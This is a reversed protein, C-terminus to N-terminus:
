IGKENELFQVDLFKLITLQSTHNTIVDGIITFVSDPISKPNM